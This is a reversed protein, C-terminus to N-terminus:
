ERCWYTKPGCLHMCPRCLVRLPRMRDHDRVGIRIVSLFVPGGVTATSTAITDIVTDGFISTVKIQAPLILAQENIPSMIFYNDSSRSMEYWTGSFFWQVALIPVRCAANSIVGHGQMVSEAGVGWGHLRGHVAHVWASMCAWQMCAAALLCNSAVLLMAHLAQLRCGPCMVAAMLTCTHAHEADARRHNSIQLKIYYPGSNQFSYVFPTSGVACQMPSWNVTWRGDGPLEQDLSGALCEPCLNSVLVYQTTLPIPNAGSGPGTGRFSLCMGCSQSNFFFPQDMAVRFNTGAAWPLLTSDSYQFSCTGSGGADGYYTGQTCARLPQKDEEEAGPLARSGRMLPAPQCMLKM